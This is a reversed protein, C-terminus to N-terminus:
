AAVGNRTLWRHHSEVEIGLKRAIEDHTYGMDRWDRIDEARNTIRQGCSLWDEKERRSAAHCHRCRWRWGKGDYQLAFADLHGNRCSKPPRNRPGIM